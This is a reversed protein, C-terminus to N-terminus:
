IKIQRAEIYYRKSRAEGMSFTKRPLSGHAAVYPFLEDKAMGSFLFGVSGSKSALSLLSGEDHIYDCSTGPHSAAYGDIFDQLTGVTLAHTPRTFRVAKQGGGTIVTVSQGDETGDADETVKALESLFDATDATSVVRYIPEFELAEDGIAVVECLAYRAPHNEGVTGKIHEYHSKAAALSHNGDGIAYVVGSKESEYKGLLSTLADLADGTVRYGKVHGGGLMLDFDYLIDLKAKIGDLYAFIGIQDDILLMVHPLEVTAERRVAERPPIRELVTAETARVPSVSGKNYDYAELDIKGVIGKRVRGDPLTRELYVMTGDYKKMMPPLTKMARAIKEEHTKQMDKGLYAEPLILSLASEDGATRGAEDWYEPESTFQDCAIIGWKTFREDTPPYPPLLIEAETFITSKM